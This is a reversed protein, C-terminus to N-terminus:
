RPRPPVPKNTIQYVYALIEAVAVFTEEPIVRGVEAKHFLLQALPKNQVIPINHRVALERIRRAFVGAGMAVVVPADMEAVKYKLAVALETPNTVVVEAQPVERIMRQRALQLQIQRRRAKIQPDGELDKAEDKVQQRTMRLDREFQYRQYAWDVLALAFLVALLYYALTLAEAFAYAGLAPFPLRSAAALSPLRDILFLYAVIGVAVVKGVDTLTRVLGRVSFIRALGSVPNLRNLDFFSKEAALSPGGVQAFSALLVAAYVLALWIWLTEAAIWALRSIEIRVQAPDISTWAASLGRRVLRASQGLMSEGYLHFAVVAVFLVVVGTLDRSYAHQGRRRAEERRRPTAPETREGVDEAM